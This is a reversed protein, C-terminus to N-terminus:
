ERRKTGPSRAAGIVSRASRACREAAESPPIKRLEDSFVEVGIPALSGIQDLIRVLNAVEIDGEDPLRRSHMSEIMPEATPTHPASNLQVAKILAGPLKRLADDDNTGRFHHWTDFVVGGNPRGARQVIEAATVADPIGTWPLFEIGADLGHRAARDCVGAFAEAAADLDVPGTFPHACNILRGGITDAIAFFEDEDRGLMSDAGSAAGAGLTGSGLWCLLPDLEAVELGADALRQRIDRPTIGEAGAQEVDEVWLSIAQFGSDRAATIKERLPTQQLTGSCLVLDTPGLM